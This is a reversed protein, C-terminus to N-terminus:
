SKVECPTRKGLITFRLKCQHFSLPTLLWNSLEARLQDFDFEVGYRRRYIEALILYYHFVFECEDESLLTARKEEVQLIEFHSETNLRNERERRQAQRVQRIISKAVPLRLGEISISDLQEIILVPGSVFAKQHIRDVLQSWSSEEGPMQRFLLMEVGSNSSHDGNRKPDFSWLFKAKSSEKESKFDMQLTGLDYIKDRFFNRKHGIPFHSGHGVEAVSAAQRWLPHNFLFTLEFKAVSEHRYFLYSNWLSEMSAEELLARVSNPIEPDTLRIPRVRQLSTIQIVQAKPM